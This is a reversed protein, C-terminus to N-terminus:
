QEGRGEKRETLALLYNEIRDLRQQIAQFGFAVDRDVRGQDHSGM